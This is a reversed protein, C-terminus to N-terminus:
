GAAVPGPTHAEPETPRVAGPNALLPTFALEAAGILPADGRLQAARIAVESRPTMLSWRDLVDNIRQERAEFVQALHGGLVIMEPNFLNIVARLGVGTWDAVQDLAETARAEGAAAASIVEAVAEPGGGPLRGALVLLENEGVKTEWCGDNGCRCRHGNSDVLLHGVEGAYGSAGALPM